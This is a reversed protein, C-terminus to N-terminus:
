ASKKLVNELVSQKSKYLKMLDYLKYNKFADVGESLLADSTFLCFEYALKSALKFKENLDNMVFRVREKNSDPIYKDAHFCFIYVFEKARKEDLEQKMADELLQKILEVCDINEYEKIKEWLDSYVHFNQHSSKIKMSNECTGFFCMVDDKQRQTLHKFHVKFEIFLRNINEVKKNGEKKEKEIEVLFRKRTTETSLLLLPQLGQYASLVVNENACAGANTEANAAANTELTEQTNGVEAISLPLLSHEEPLSAPDEEVCLMLNPTLVSRNTAQNGQM